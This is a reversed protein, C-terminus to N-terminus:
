SWFFPALAAFTWEGVDAMYGALRWLNMAFSLFVPVALLAIWGHFAATRLPKPMGHTMADPVM